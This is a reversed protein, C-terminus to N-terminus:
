PKAYVRWAMRAGLKPCHQHFLTWYPDLNTKEEGSGLQFNESEGAVLVLGHKAAVEDFWEYFSPRDNDVFLFLSGRKAQSLLHAFFPDAQARLRYIESFFYIFTFLDAALYRTQTTWTRPDIVDLVQSHTSVRFPLATTRREIDSWTDGWASERDLMYCKLGGTASFTLMHKVVGLFDSGPGGGIAAMDIWEREFLARLAPVYMIKDAVINAFCTTYKYIYAFRTEHKRYDPGPRTHDELDRYGDTLAPFEALVVAERTPNPIIANYEDDLVTKVLEFISLMGDLSGFREDVPL